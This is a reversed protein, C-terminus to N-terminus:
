DQKDGAGIELPKATYKEPLPLKRIKPDLQIDGGLVANRINVLNVFQSVRDAVNLM